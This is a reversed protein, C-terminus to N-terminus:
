FKVRNRVEKVAKRLYANPKKPNAMREAVFAADQPSLTILREKALVESAKETAASIIFSNLPVGLFLAADELLSHASPTM